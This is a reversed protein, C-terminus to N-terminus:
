HVDIADCYTLLHICVVYDGSVETEFALSKESFLERSRDKNDKKHFDNFIGEVVEGQGNGWFYFKCYFEIRTRNTTNNNLIRVISNVTILAFHPYM